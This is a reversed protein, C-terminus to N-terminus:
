SKSIEHSSFIGKIEEFVEEVSKEGNVKCLKGKTGFYEIMPLTSEFFLKVRKKITEIQDDERGQNRNLARQIMVDESCELYLVFKPEIKIVADYASLNEENRPFGDILFKNNGNEQIARQLLKVVIDSPVLKGEKQMNKIMASDASGSEMEVRLLDGVSLHSFGYHKAIKKCQTGKGSGPGGLVFIVTVGNASSRSM